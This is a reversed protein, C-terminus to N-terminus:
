TEVESFLDAPLKLVILSALLGVSAEYQLSTHYKPSIKCVHVLCVLQKLFHNCPSFRIYICAHVESLEVELGDVELKIQKPFNALTRDMINKAGERAYLVKNM